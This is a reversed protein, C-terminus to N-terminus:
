KNSLVANPFLGLILKVLQSYSRDLHNIKGMGTKGRRSFADEHFLTRQIPSQFVLIAESLYRTASRMHAQEICLM